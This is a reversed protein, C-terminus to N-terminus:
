QAPCPCIIRPKARERLIPALLRRSGNPRIKSFVAHGVRVQHDALVVLGEVFTTKGVVGLKERGIRHNLVPGVV